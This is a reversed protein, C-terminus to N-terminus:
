QLYDTRNQETDAVIKFVKHFGVDYMSEFVKPQTNIIIVQKCEEGLEEAMEALMGMAIGDIKTTDALDFVFSGNTPPNKYIQKQVRQFLSYEKFTFEGIFNITTTGHTTKTYIAM